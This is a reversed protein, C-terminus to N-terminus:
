SKRKGRLADWWITFVGIGFFLGNLAGGLLVMFALVPNFKTAWWGGIDIVVGFFGIGMTAIKFKDPLPTQLLLWSLAFCLLGIGFLHQHSVMALRAWSLGTNASTTAAVETYTTLSRFSAAGGPNHCGICQADIIGKVPGFSEETAGGRIWDLITQVQADSQLMPRMSGQIKTSLLTKEPEGHFHVVIDLPTLGPRGDARNMSFYLNGLATVYGLGLVLAFLAALIKRPRTSDAM